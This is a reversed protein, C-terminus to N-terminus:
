AVERDANISRLMYDFPNHDEQIVIGKGLKKALHYECVAGESAEWGKLMVLCDVSRIMACCIDM